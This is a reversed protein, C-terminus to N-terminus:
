PVRWLTQPSDQSQTGRRQYTIGKHRAMESVQKPTPKPGYIKTVKEVDNNMYNVDRSHEMLEMWDNMSVNYKQSFMNIQENKTRAPEGECIQIFTPCASEEHFEGCPTRYPISQHDVLINTELPNPPRKEHSPYRKQWRDNPKHQFKSTQDREM